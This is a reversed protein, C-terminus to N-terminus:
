DVLAIFQEIDEKILNLSSEWFKIDHLNCDVMLGIDLLSAKGTQALLHEYKDVFAPGVAEYQAYVGKSFLLGFAYPYNYFSFSSSYYHPKILWMYPHLTERDLGGGYARKQADLMLLNLEAVSLTRTERQDFLAKEFLFRSYIDVIVQAAGQLDAELITLKTKQDSEKMIAQKLITECFISATEAIPMGYDSNLLTENELCMGHYAHGLEHALTKVNSFSGDFNALIRSQKLPHINSCFAGNVKGKKAFMDIWSEDFARNALEAMKPSFTAFNKAIVEQAQEVSYVLDIQGVPAFLDYFPLGGEHGLLKAKARFYAHFSPLADEIAAIMTELTEMDMRSAELSQELPSKFGRARSVTIVEGKIANIAAGSLPGVQKYASLEAEYASKRILADGDYALNRIEAITKEQQNHMTTITSSVYDQLDSWAHSGTNRLSSLLIEAEKSLLRKASKAGELLYFQHEVLYPTFQSVVDDDYNQGLWTIFLAEPQTLKATVGRLVSLAEAAEKNTVDTALTLNAYNFLTTLLSKIATQQTLYHTAVDNFNADDGLSVAAWETLKEILDALKKVDNDYKESTFSPYLSTLEWNNM